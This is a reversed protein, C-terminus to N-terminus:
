ESEPRVLGGEVLARRLEQAQNRAQARDPHGLMVVVRGSLSRAVRDKAAQIEPEREERPLLAMIDTERPLGHRSLVVVHAIAAVVLALWLLALIKRM